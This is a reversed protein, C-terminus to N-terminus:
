YFDVPVVPWITAYLPSIDARFSVEAPEVPEDGGVSIVRYHHDSGSRLLGTEYRLEGDREVQALTQWKGAADSWEQIEYHDGKTENWRLAYRRTELQQCELSLDSGLLVERKVEVPDVPPGYLVYGDGERVARVTLRIPSDYGPLPLDGDEGFRLVATDGVIERLAQYEGDTLVGIEYGGRGDWHLQLEGPTQGGEAELVPRLTSYPQLSIEIADQSVLERERGLLNNGKAVGQIKIDLPKNLLSGDLLMQDGSLENLVTFKKEEGARISVRSIASMQPWTLLVHGDEQIYLTVNGKGMQPQTIGPTVFWAAAGAGLVLAAILLVIWIAKASKRRTYM